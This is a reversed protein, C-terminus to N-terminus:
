SSKVLSATRPLTLLEQDAAPIGHGTMATAYIHLSHQQIPLDAAVDRNVHWFLEFEDLRYQAQADTGLNFLDGPKLDYQLSLWALNAEKFAKADKRLFANRAKALQLEKKSEPPPDEANLKNEIMRLLTRVTIGHLASLDKLLKLESDITKHLPTSM